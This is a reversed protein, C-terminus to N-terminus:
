EDFSPQSPVSPGFGGRHRCSRSSRAGSARGDFLTAATVILGPARWIQGRAQRVKNWLRGDRAMWAVHFTNSELDLKLEVERFDILAQTTLYQCKYFAEKASFFLKVLSGQDCLKQEALWLREAWTCIMPAVQSSFPLDPELDLGFGVIEPSNTVAAACYGRAHAISGIIGPPWWPSRDVQPVLSVPPVGLQALAHRACVRATGFEARRRHVAGVIYQREGPFLESDALGPTAMAVAFAPGLFSTLTTSNFPREKSLKSASRMGVRQVM